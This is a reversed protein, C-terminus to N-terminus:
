ASPFFYSIIGLTLMAILLSVVVTPVVRRLSQSLGSQYLGSASFAVCTVLAFLIGDPFLSSLTANEGLRTKGAFVLVCFFAFAELLLLVLVRTSVYHGFIRIM